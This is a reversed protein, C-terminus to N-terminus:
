GQAPSEAPIVLLGPLADPVDDPPSTPFTLLVRRRSSATTPSATSGASSSRMASTASRARRTKERQLELRHARRSRLQAAAFALISDSHFLLVCALLTWIATWM